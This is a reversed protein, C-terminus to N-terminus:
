FWGARGEWIVVVTKRELASSTGELDGAGVAPGNAPNSDSGGTTPRGSAGESMPHYFITPISVV